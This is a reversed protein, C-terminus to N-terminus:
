LKQTSTIMHDNYNNFPADNVSLFLIADNYGANHMAM